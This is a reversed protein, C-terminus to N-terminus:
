GDEPFMSGPGDLFLDPMPPVGAETAYTELDAIEEEIIVEEDIFFNGSCDRSKSTLIVHAADSIIEPTRSARCM